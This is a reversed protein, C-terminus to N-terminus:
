NGRNQQDAEQIGQFFDHYQQATIGNQSHASLDQAKQRKEDDSMIKWDSSIQTARDTATTQSDSSPTYHSAEYTPLPDHTYHPANTTQVLIYVFMAVGLVFMAVCTAVKCFDSTLFDFAGNWIRTTIFGKLNKRVEKKLVKRGNRGLIIEKQCHPCQSDMGEHEPAYTMEGSCHPCTYSCEAENSTEQAQFNKTELNVRIQKTWKSKPEMARPVIPVTTQIHEGLNANALQEQEAQYLALNQKQIEEIRLEEISKEKQKPMVATGRETYRRRNQETIEAVVQKHTKGSKPSKEAQKAARAVITNIKKSDGKMNLLDFYAPGKSKVSEAFDKRESPSKGTKKM